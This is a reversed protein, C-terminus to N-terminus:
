HLESDAGTGLSFPICTQHNGTTRLFREDILTGVPIHKYSSTYNTCRAEHADMEYTRSSTVTGIVLPAAPCCTDHLCPRSNMNRLLDDVRIEPSMLSSSTHNPSSPPLHYENSYHAACPPRQSEASDIMTPRPRAKKERSAGSCKHLSNAQLTRSLSLHQACCHRGGILQRSRNSNLCRCIYILFFGIKTIDRCEETNMCRRTKTMKNGTKTM